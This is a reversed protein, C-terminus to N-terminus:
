PREAIMAFLTNMLNNALSVKKEYYAKVLVKLSM